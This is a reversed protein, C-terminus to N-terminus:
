WRGIPGTNTNAALLKGNANETAPVSVAEANAAPHGTITLAWGPWRCVEASVAATTVSLRAPTPAGAPRKAMIVPTCAPMRANCSGRM